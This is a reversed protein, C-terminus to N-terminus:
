REQQLSVHAPMAHSSLVSVEGTGLWLSVERGNGLRAVLKHSPVLKHRSLMSLLSVERVGGVILRM